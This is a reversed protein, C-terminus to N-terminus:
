PRRAIFISREGTFFVAGMDELDDALIQLRALAYENPDDRRDIAADFGRFFHAVANEFRGRM